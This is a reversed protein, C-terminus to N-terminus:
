GNTVETTASETGKKNICRCSLIVFQGNKYNPNDNGYGIPYCTRKNIQNALLQNAYKCLVPISNEGVKVALPYNSEPTNINCACVLKYTCANELNKINKNPILIVMNDSVQCNSCIITNNCNNM